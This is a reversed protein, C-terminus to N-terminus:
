GSPERDLPAELPAPANRSAERRLHAHVVMRALIRLGTATSRATRRYVGGIIEEAVCPHANITGKQQGKEDREETYTKTPNCVPEGGKVDPSGADM